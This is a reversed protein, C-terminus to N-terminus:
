KRTVSVLKLTDNQLLYTEVIETGDAARTYEKEKIVKIGSVQSDEEFYKAWTEMYSGSGMTEYIYLEKRKRDFITRCPTYSGGAVINNYPKEQISELMGPCSSQPNGKVLDFCAYYMRNYGEHAVVFEEENDFNVDMFFMKPMSEADEIRDVNLVPFDMEISFVGISDTYYYEADIPLRHIACYRDISDGREFHYLIIAGNSIISIHYGNPTNSSLFTTASDGFFSTVSKSEEYSVVTGKIHTNNVCGTILLCIMVICLYYTRIM